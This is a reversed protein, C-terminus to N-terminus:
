DIGEKRWLLFPQVERKKNDEVGSQLVTTSSFLTKYIAVFSVFVYLFVGEQRAFALYLETLFALAVSFNFM